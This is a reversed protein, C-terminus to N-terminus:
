YFDSKSAWISLLSINLLTPHAGLVESSRYAGVCGVCMRPSLHSVSRLAGLIRHFIALLRNM